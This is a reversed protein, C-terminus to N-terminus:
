EDVSRVEFNDQYNEDNSKSEESNADCKYLSYSKKFSLEVRYMAGQEVSIINALDLAFANWKNYNALKKELLNITQTAVPTAVKRLNRAGNLENDQLFQLINNSHIKYVRVDVARLNTAEFNIKLNNSTPLITGNKIFRVNPKSQEFLVKEIYNNKM